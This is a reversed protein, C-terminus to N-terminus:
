RRRVPPERRVVDEDRRQEAERRLEARRIEADRRLAEDRALTTDRTTDRGIASERRATSERIAAERRAQEERTVVGGDGEDIYSGPPPEVDAWMRQRRSVGVLGGLLASILGLALAGFVGWFVKGTVDAAKLAKQQAQQGVSSLKQEIELAVM